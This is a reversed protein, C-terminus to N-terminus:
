LSKVLTWAHCSRMRMTSITVRVICTLLTVLPEPRAFRWAVNLGYLESSYFRCIKM